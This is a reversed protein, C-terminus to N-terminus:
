CIYQCHFGSKLNGGLDTVDYVDPLDEVGSYALELVSHNNTYIQPDYSAYNGWVVSNNLTVIGESLYLGGGGSTAFNGSITSNNIRYIGDLSTAIGGGSRTAHNGSVITNTLTLLGIASDIGGGSGGSNGSIISNRITLDLGAVGGGGSTAYNDSIVTNNITGDGLIGGGSGDTSNNRIISDVVILSIVINEYVDAYIGGGFSSAFNERITSNRIITQAGVQWSSIGGGAAASGNRVTSNVVSLRGSNLINGGYDAVPGLEGDDAIGNQLTISYLQLDGTTDVHFLRFTDSISESRELTHGQGGIIISSTINPLGNEGNIRNDIHTLTIDADLLITDTSSGNLNACVLATILEEATSVTAPFSVCDTLSTLDLRPKTITVNNRTYSVPKGNNKMLSLIEAITANPYRQRMLAFAGVVHPAAMSTGLKTDFDDDETDFNVPVSSRIWEGPALLDLIRASQSFESIEDVVTHDGDHSSGDQTSGVSIVNSICAPFAIGSVFNGDDDKAENMSAAVVAINESVLQNVKTTFMPSADDCTGPYHGGGLSMNVAVINYSNRINFIHQLAAILDSARVQLCPNSDECTANSVKTSVQISIISVDPAVGTFDLSESNGAIIGAVHTGHDCGELNCPQGTGPGYEANGGFPCVSEALWDGDSHSFCAEAIPIVRGDLVPHSSDVGSDLIVVTQSTGTYSPNGMHFAEAGILGVSESVGFSLLQDLRISTVMSSHELMRLAQADIVYAVGPITWDTYIPTIDFRALQNMIVTQARRISQEQAQIAAQDPLYGTPTFPVDLGIIVRAYGYEDIQAQIEALKEAQSTAQAEVHSSPIAFFVLLIIAFTTLVAILKPFNM